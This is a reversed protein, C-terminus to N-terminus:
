LIQLFFKTQWYWVSLRSLIRSKRNLNRMGWKWLFVSMSFDKNKKIFLHKSKQLCKLKEAALKGGLTQIIRCTYYFSQWNSDTQNSWLLQFLYPWCRIRRVGPSELPNVKDRYGQHKPYIHPRKKLCCRTYWCFRCVKWNNNISVAFNETLIPFVVYIQHFFNPM